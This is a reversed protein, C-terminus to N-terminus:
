EFTEEQGKKTPNTTIGRTTGRVVLEPTMTEAIDGGPIGDITDVLRAVAREGLGPIDLRMTTLGLYRAAPVDDFGAVAIMDPVAIGARRLTLVCGIAMMDNGAFVADVPMHDRLIREAAATGSEETFDGDLIMFEQGADHMETVFGDIREEADKNGRPGRIHVIRKCGTSLLHRTMAAAGTRNDVQIAPHDGPEPTNMLVAPLGAPLSARRLALTLHPAMLVVGDVRGRLTRLAQAARNPDDHMNSLLLQYGRAQAERDMGRVIESFFEGHLDPLVVGIAHARALSLSRAGAHPVYGLREAVEVIRARTEPLMSSHGNLARSVSAVSVGAERAVDRITVSSLGTGMRERAAM